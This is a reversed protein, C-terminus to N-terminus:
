NWVAAARRAEQQAVVHVHLDLVAMLEADVGRSAIMHILTLMNDPTPPTTNIFEIMEAHTVPDM